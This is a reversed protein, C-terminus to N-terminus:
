SPQLGLQDILGGWKDMEAALSAAAEEPPLGLPTAGESELQQVFGPDKMVVAIDEYIKRVLPEPTQKPVMVAFWAGSEFGDVGSEAVTPVEPLIASRQAGTIALARLNGAQIQPMVLPIPAFAM